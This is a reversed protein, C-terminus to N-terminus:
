DTNVTAYIVGFGKLNITGGEDKNNASKVFM